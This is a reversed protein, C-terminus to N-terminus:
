RNNAAAEALADRDEVPGSIQVLQTADISRLLQGTFSPPIHKNVDGNINLVQNYQVSQTNSNSNQQTQALAPSCSLLLGFLVRVTGSTM